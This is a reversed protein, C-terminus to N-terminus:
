ARAAAGLLRKRLWTGLRMGRHYPHVLLVLEPDGPGLGGPGLDGPELDGPASGELVAGLAVLGGHEDRVLISPGRPTVLLAQLEADTWSATYSEAGESRAAADLCACLLGEVDDIEDGLAPTATLEDGSLLLIDWRPRHRETTVARLFSQARAEETVTFPAWDRVAVLWGGRPAPVALV